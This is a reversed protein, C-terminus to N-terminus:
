WMCLWCSDKEAREAPDKGGGCLWTWVQSCHCEGAESCGSFCERLAERLVLGQLDFAYSDNFPLFLSLV